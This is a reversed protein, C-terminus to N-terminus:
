VAGLAWSLWCGVMVLQTVLLGALLALVSLHLVAVGFVLVAAVLAFRAIAGKWLLRSAGADAQTLGRVARVIMHFNGLSIVAGLGFGAMWDLRGLALLLVLGAAGVATAGFLTRRIFTEREDL